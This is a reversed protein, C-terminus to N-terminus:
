HVSKDGYTQGYIDQYWDLKYRYWAQYVIDLVRTIAGHENVLHALIEGKTDAHKPFCPDKYVGKALDGLANDEGRFKMLWNYFSLKDKILTM